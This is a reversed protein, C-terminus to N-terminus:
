ISDSHENNQAGSGEMPGQGVASGIRVGYTNFNWKCIIESSNNFSVLNRNETHETRHRAYCKTVHQSKVALTTKSREWSRHQDVGKTAHWPSSTWQKRLWRGYRAATKDVRWVLVGTGVWTIFSRKRSTTWTQKNRTKADISWVHLGHPGNTVRPVCFRERYLAEYGCKQCKTLM